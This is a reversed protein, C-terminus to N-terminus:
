PMYAVNISLRQMGNKLTVRADTKGESHLLNRTQKTFLERQQELQNLM